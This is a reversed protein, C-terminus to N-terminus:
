LKKLLYFSLLSTMLDAIFKLILAGENFFYIMAFLILSSIFPNIAAIFYYGQYFYRSEKFVSKRLISSSCIVFISRISINLLIINEYFDNLIFFLTIEIIYFIIVFSYYKILLM